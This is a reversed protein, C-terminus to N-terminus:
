LTGGVAVRVARGCGRMVRVTTRSVDGVRVRGGFLVSGEVREARHEHACPQGRYDCDCAVCGDRVGLVCSGAVGGLRVTLSVVVAM